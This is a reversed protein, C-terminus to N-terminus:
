FALLDIVYLLLFSFSSPSSSVLNSESKVVNKEKNEITQHISHAIMGDTSIDKNIESEKSLETIKQNISRVNLSLPIPMSVNVSSSNNTYNTPLPQPQYQPLSQSSSNNNNMTIITSTYATSPTMFLLGPRTTTSTNRQNIPTAHGPYYSPNDEENIEKGKLKSHNTSSSTTSSSSSLSLSSSSSSTININNQTPVTSTRPPTFSSSTSSTSPSLLISDKNNPEVINTTTTSTTTTTTTSVPTTITIVSSTQIPTGHPSITQIVSAGQPLRIYAERSSPTNPVTINSVIVPPSNSNYNNLPPSMIVPVPQTNM